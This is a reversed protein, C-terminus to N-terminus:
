RLGGMDVSEVHAAAPEKPKLNNCNTNAMFCLFSQPPLGIFSSARLFSGASIPEGREARSLTAASVGVRVAASRLDLRRLRRTIFLNSAFLWWVIASGARPASVVQAGTAADLGTASCLLMYATASVKRGARARAGIKRPVGARDSVVAMEAHSLSQLHQALRPRASMARLQSETLQKHHHDDDM